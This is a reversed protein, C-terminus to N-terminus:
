MSEGMLGLSFVKVKWKTIRGLVKMYVDTAGNICEKAKSITTLLSVLMSVKTEGFLTDRGMNEVMWMFEKTRLEMMGLRLVKGTSSIKKGNGKTGLGMWIHIFESDMQKITKGIAMTFMAMQM